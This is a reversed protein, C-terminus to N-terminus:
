AWSEKGSMRALAKHCKRAIARLYNRSRWLQWAECNPPWPHGQQKCNRIAQRDLEGTTQLHSLLHTLLSGGFANSEFFHLIKSTRFLQPNLLVMSNYANPLMEIQIESEFVASNFSPQDSHGLGHQFGAQWKRHWLAGFERVESTDRMLLVGTNFYHRPVAWDMAEFIPVIGPPMFEDAPLRNHELVAGLSAPLNLLEYFPEIPATDVDVFLFDGEIHSRLSTKVFRSRAAADDLGTEVRVVEDAAEAVRNGPVRLSEHTCEDVVLIIKAAPHLERVLTASIWAM